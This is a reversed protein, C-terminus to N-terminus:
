KSPPGLYNSSNSPPCVQSSTLLPLPFPSSSDPILPSQLSTSLTLFKFLLIYCHSSPSSSTALLFDWIGPFCSAEQILPSSMLQFICCLPSLVQLSWICVKPVVRLQPIPDSVRRLLILGSNSRNLSFVLFFIPASVSPFAM